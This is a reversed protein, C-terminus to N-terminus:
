TRYNGPRSQSRRNEYFSLTPAYDPSLREQSERTLAPASVGDFALAVVHAAGGFGGAVYLPQRKRTALLVEEVIGPMLGSFGTMRGGLVVRADTEDTVKERM